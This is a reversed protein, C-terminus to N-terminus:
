AKVLPSLVIMGIANVTSIDSEDWTIFVAGNNSFADSNLIRPLEQALWIDGQHALSSSGAALSHMDNTINPTIFNYRGIRGAALDDAFRSYPRVHNTCYMYNTTVDDFFAFPNHRAVYPFADNTGTVGAPMSEM